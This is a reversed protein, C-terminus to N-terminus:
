HHSRLCNVSTEIEKPILVGSGGLSSGAGAAILSSALATVAGKAILAGGGFEILAIGAGIEAAGLVEPVWKM